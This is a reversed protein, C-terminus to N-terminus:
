VKLGSSLEHSNGNTRSYCNGPFGNLHHHTSGNTPSTHHDGSGDASDTRHHKEPIFSHDHKSDKIDSYRRKRSEMEESSRNKPSRAAGPSHQELDSDQHRRKKKKKKKTETARDSDMDSSSEHHRDKDKSKKKKKSKKHRKSHHADSSNDREKSVYDATRMHNQDEGNPASESSPLLPRPQLGKLKNTEAVTVSSSTMEGSSSYDRERGNSKMLQCERVEEQWRRRSHSDERHSYSYGRREYDVNDRSRHYYYRYNHSSRDHDRERPYHPSRDRRRDHERGRYHREPPHVRDRNSRHHRHDRYDRRYRHRDSDTEREQSRGRYRRDRDRDSVSYLRDRERDRSSQRESGRPKSHYQEKTDAHGETGASPGNTQPLDKAENKGICVQPSASPGNTSQSCDPQTSLAAPDGHHGASSASASERSAITHINTSTAAPPSGICTSATHHPLPESLTKARTDPTSVDQSKIAAPHISQSSTAQSSAPNHPDKNPQSHDNSLGNAVAAAASSSSGQNSVCIKHPTSHGNVKHHGYHHGNQNSKSVGCTSGNLGNGSHHVASEGNTTKPSSDFIEGTGNKGKPHSKSLFGNDLTVCNEQDSEESSEQGYPVLFSAGNGGTHHDGNSCSTGNVHNLQRPVFRVDSTSQSSSLSRSSSSSASSPQSYSSTSSSSSSSSSPRNQKGQGIFFSLKQRKDHDPIITPRSISHSISSSALGHCPKGMVSSSTSPKSTTPYDRVSGNGNVHLNSKTMHPPLQPGILGINNHHVTANIRPVVVPRPSSQGSIGTHHSYDGTKKVDASKIYFLVYAQQNLVTRIDSVSVSSDNMQYWQGNSAKIYCFYHGAHCSFGSHVLVAYLGYIQPEGQSQSMFPRLDLYEPYKVDKTIKGGTFNAFRKLSLTLVNSSRHITFRKSATVMKKCKTCKYANEGDLQEPKVFQELAKSVSPATKIELTIDLFPDFTDSVAKCNLCKVRSRLYGGFVHHIFTTAQTQRDLKTGPLCSKQMADVTYRLFEHADEQSGYRFHKAIRKLENLVGIPKIVNGSNAFVQIIHNQMTCMMCFGPEHCTKSHERTLMYNALPPTYTLCQLASNLFCTNGMNQLGAGIRHVQTWKLILREPSFLVKQPLDIGDGCSMVQEKPRDVSSPTSNYVAAGPMPGLCGGPAKLRPSDSPMTPGVAWSSSCSGDMGVDGSAFYSRNCGVSEHDSKESLRDVITM